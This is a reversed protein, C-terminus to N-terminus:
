TPIFRGRSYPIFLCKPALRCIWLCPRRKYPPVPHDNPKRASAHTGHPWDHVRSVFHNKNQDYLTLDVQRQQVIMSLNSALTEDYGSLPDFHQVIYAVIQQNNAEITNSKYQDFTRRVIFATLGIFIISLIVSFLIFYTRLQQRISKDM